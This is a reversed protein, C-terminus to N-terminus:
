PSSGCDDQITWQCPRTSCYKLMKVHGDGFLANFGGTHRGEVGYDDRKLDKKNAYDLMTEGWLMVYTSDTVWIASAPDKMDAEHVSAYYDVDRDLHTSEFDWFGRHNIWTKSQGWAKTISGFSVANFGYSGVLNKFGPPRVWDVTWAQRDSPCLLIDDIKCYPKLLDPWQYIHMSSGWVPLIVPTEWGDNDSSYMRLGHFIQRLNSQCTTRHGRGRASALAPFLLAALIAIIAIVVLLAILTFAAKLRKM